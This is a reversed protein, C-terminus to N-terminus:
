VVALSVEDIPMESEVPSEFVLINNSDIFATSYTVYSTTADDITQEIPVIDETVIEKVHHSKLHTKRKNITSFKEPCAHCQYPLEGTHLRLHAVLSDKKAFSRNCFTCHFLKVGVICM